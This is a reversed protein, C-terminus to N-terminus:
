ISSSLDSKSNGRSHKKLFCTSMTTFKFLDTKEEVIEVDSLVELGCSITFDWKGHGVYM